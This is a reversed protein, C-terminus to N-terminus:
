GMIQFNIVPIRIGTLTDIMEITKDNLSSKLISADFNVIFSSNLAAASKKALEKYNPYYMRPLDSLNGATLTTWGKDTGLM